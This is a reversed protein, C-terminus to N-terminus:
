LTISTTEEVAPTAEHQSYLYTLPALLPKIVAVSNQEWTNSCTHTDWTSIKDEWTQDLEKPIHSVGLGAPHNFLIPRDHHHNESECSSCQVKSVGCKLQHGDLCHHVNATRWSPYKSQCLETPWGRIQPGTFNKKQAHTPTTILFSIYIVSLM